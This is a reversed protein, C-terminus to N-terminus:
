EKSLNELEKMQEIKNKDEKAKDIIQQDTLGQAQM